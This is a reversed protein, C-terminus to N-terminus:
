IFHKFEINKDAIGIQRAWDIVSFSPCAKHAVQNHGILKLWPQRSLYYIATAEMSALQAPTRTDKARLQQDTGGAYCIHITKGNWGAAGNTIENGELFQDDNFNILDHIKGHIDILQRYGVQQWGRGHLKYIPIGGIRHDPLAQRSQYVRGMYRTGIYVGKRYLDCPGQHMQYIHEPQLDRGEPTASCHYMLYEAETM